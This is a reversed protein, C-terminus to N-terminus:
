AASADRNDFKSDQHEVLRSLHSAFRNYIKPATYTSDFLSRGRQQMAALEAPNNLLGTIAAALSGANGPAYPRGCRHERLLTHLEGPLSSVIALGGALYEFPKNPLSQLAGEAYAALGIKSWEMLATITTSRVWGLLVVNNLKDAARQLAPMQSGDGCLVFQVDGRGSDQLRSAAKVITPLDYSTEFLGSYICLSKRPDVGQGLLWRQEHSREDDSLSAVDHGLPFAADAPRASRDAHRVGWDVYSQSVGVIATAQRCVHRAQREMPALAFRGVGRLSRPLATLYVDPWLDRVDIAVPVGAHNGYEIAAACWAITPVGAVILDPKAEHRMLKRIESALRRYSRWRALSVNSRYGQAHVLQVEYTDTPRLRENHTARHQKTAHHFTPAWRLVHDGREIFADALRGYRFRRQSGDIPLDEGVHLLWVNVIRPIM